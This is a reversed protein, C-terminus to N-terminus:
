KRQATATALYTQQQCDLLDCQHFIAIWCCSEGLKVSCTSCDLSAKATSTQLSINHWHCECLINRLQWRFLQQSWTQKTWCDNEVICHMTRCDHAGKYYCGGEFSLQGWITAASLHPSFNITTAAVIWIFVTYRSHIQLKAPWLERLSGVDLTM